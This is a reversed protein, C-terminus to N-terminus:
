SLHYSPSIVMPRVDREVTSLAVEGARYQSSEPITRISSVFGADVECSVPLGEILDGRELRALRLRVKVYGRLVGGGGACIGVRRRRMGPRGRGTRHTLTGRHEFNLNLLCRWVATRASGSYRLRCEVRARTRCFCRPGARKQNARTRGGGRM